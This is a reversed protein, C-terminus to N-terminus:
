FARRRKEGKYKFAWNEAIQVLSSSKKVYEVVPGKIDKLRNPFNFDQIIKVL